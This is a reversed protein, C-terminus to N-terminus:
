KRFDKNFVLFYCIHRISDRSHRQGRQWLNWSKLKDDTVFGKAQMAMQYYLPIGHKHCFYEIMGIIRLTPVSSFTHQQLKHAYVKYDECVIIDPKSDILLHEISDWDIKGTSDDYGPTQGNAILKCGEMISWGVTGGPDLGLVRCKKSGHLRQYISEFQTM